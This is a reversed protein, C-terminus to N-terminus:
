TIENINFFRFKGSVAVQTRQHSWTWKPAYEMAIMTEDANMIQWAHKIGAMKFVDGVDNYWKEFSKRSAPM